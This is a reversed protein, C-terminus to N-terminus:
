KIKTLLEELESILSSLSGNKKIKTKPAGVKLDTKINKLQQKAGSITFGENYLLEQIKRIILIDRPQYYRRGGARTTPRLQTFEQEWYRLVHPKVKCLNSAEGISFYRKNPIDPLSESAKKKM